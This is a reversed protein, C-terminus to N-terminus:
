AGTLNTYFLYEITVEKEPIVDWWKEVTRELEKLRRDWEAGKKVLGSGQWCGKVKKGNDDVYADPNFRIMVMPRSGLGQFISMLRKNECSTDYREHQFEDVEVVITHSGLEIVFDPRFKFCDVAKDHTIISEPWKSVLFDKIAREKTKFMRIKPSDSFAHSFCQACHGQYGERARTSCCISCKKEWLNIMGDRAHGTCYMAEKSGPANCCATKSCGDEECFNRAFVKMDSKMHEQCYEARKYGYTPRKNCDKCMRDIVNWMEESKHKSCHTPRNKVIGYRANVECCTCKPFRLYIMGEEKHIACRSKRENQFGFSSQTTCLECQAKITNFMGDKRHHDCHTPKRGKQGFSPSKLCGEHSCYMKRFSKMDEERHIKCRIPREYGYSAKTICGEHKCFRIGIAKMDPAKHTLCFKATEYGFNPRSKCNEHNCKM